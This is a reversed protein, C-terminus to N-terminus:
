LLSSSSPMSPLSGFICRWRVKHAKKFVEGNQVNELLKQYRAEHEKEVAAILKFASGIDKFGEKDAIKGFTPYLNTWEEHEGMAAAKLNEATTGLKGAPYMATIELGEGSQLFSFYTKAHVQENAATEEFIAAIQEYGEKRAIKAFYTYRNRAQSEGAFAKLLNKETESGILQVM